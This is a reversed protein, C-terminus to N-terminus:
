DGERVSPHTDGGFIGVSLSSCDVSYSFLYIFSPLHLSLLSWKLFGWDCAEMGPIVAACALVKGESM